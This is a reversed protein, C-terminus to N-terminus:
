PRGPSVWAPNTLSLDRQHGSADHAVVGSSEDFSWYGILGPTAPSVPVDRWGRIQEPSRVTSWIRVEDVRGNFPADVTGLTDLIRAGVVLPFESGPKTSLGWGTTFSRQVGDVYVTLRGHDYSVALHRWQGATTDPQTMTLARQSLETTFMGATLGIRGEGDRWTAIEFAQWQGVLVQYQAEGGVSSFWLEVTWTSDLDPMAAADLQAASGASFGMATGSGCVVDFHVTVTDAAPVRIKRPPSRGIIGCNPAADGLTVTTSDSPIGTLVITGFPPIATSAGTGLMVSYGSPDIDRGFSAVDVSVSGPLDACVVEIPLPVHADSIVQFSHRLGGTVECNNAVDIIDVTHTGAPLQLTVAQSQAFLLSDRGDFVLQVGNPDLDQGIIQLDLDFFGAGSPQVTSDSCGACTLFVLAVVHSRSV